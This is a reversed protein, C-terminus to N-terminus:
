EGGFLDKLDDDSLGDVSADGKSGEEDKPEEDGDGEAPEEDKSEEDDRLSKVM